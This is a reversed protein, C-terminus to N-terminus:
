DQVLRITWFDAALQADLVYAYPMYFYGRDQVDRGWSNRVIFCGGMHGDDYGVALVAHGGLLEDSHSPLPINVLPKHAQDFFSSYVSFGFVFPYTETLCRKLLNLTQPIRHYTQIKHPLASEFAEPSPRQAEKAGAPFLHTEPDAPTDDYPWQSEPCVGLSHLVKIGDRLQAGSDAGTTHELSRENYYIFLRSPEFAPHEKALARDYQIAAALANATCSGIRGQDYPAFHIKSRLDIRAPLATRATEFSVAYFADRQDPLDRIWGLRYGITM